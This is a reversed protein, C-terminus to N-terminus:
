NNSSEAAHALSRIVTVKTFLSKNVLLLDSSLYNLDTSLDEITWVGGLRRSSGEYHGAPQLISAGAGLMVYADGDALFLFCLCLHM